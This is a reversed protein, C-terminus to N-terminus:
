EVKILLFEQILEIKLDGFKVIYTTTGQFTERGCVEGISGEDITKNVTKLKKFINLLRVEEDKFKWINLPRLLKVKDGKEAIRSATWEILEVM